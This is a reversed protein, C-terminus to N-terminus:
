DADNSEDRSKCGMQAFFNTFLSWKTSWILLIGVCFKKASSSFVAQAEEHVAPVEQDDRREHHSGRQKHLDERPCFAWSHRGHDCWNAMAFQRDSAQYLQGSCGFLGTDHLVQGGGAISTQCWSPSGAIQHLIIFPGQWVLNRCMRILSVRSDSLFKSEACVM